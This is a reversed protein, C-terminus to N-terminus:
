DKEWVLRFGVGRNKLDTNGSHRQASRSFKSPFMFSGGRMVKALGNVPGRPDVQSSLPYDEYWDSVWEYVNGYMDYLGWANPLKTAVPHTILGSNEKFWAYQNLGQENDGFAYRSRTSARAAYEWEAETPLRYHGHPAQQNLGVLFLEIEEYSVNEVPHTASLPYYAPNDNMVAQWQGQTVETAQLYFPNSITVQVAEEDGLPSRKLEDVPSGMVFHGAPIKVFRMGLANSVSTQPQFWWWYGSTLLASAILATLGILIFLRKM